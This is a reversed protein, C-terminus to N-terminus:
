WQAIQIVIHPFITKIKNSIDQARFIETIPIDVQSIAIPYTCAMLYFGVMRVNYRTWRKRGLIWSLNRSRIGPSCPRHWANAFVVRSAKDCALLIKFEQVVIPKRSLLFFRKFINQSASFVRCSWGLSPYQVFWTYGGGTGSVPWDDETISSWFIWVM